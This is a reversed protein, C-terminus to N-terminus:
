SVARSRGRTIKSRGSRGGSKRGVRRDAKEYLVKGRALIETLFLDGWEVRRRLNEPTRVILDLAFDRELAEDIKLAQGLENRTPMVVLLDVDSDATPKGDAYSGFLVVREPRFRQVLENVYRRIASKPVLGPYFMKPPSHM